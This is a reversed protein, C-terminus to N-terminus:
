IGSVWTQRTALPARPARLGIPFESFNPAILGIALIGQRFRIPNPTQILSRAPQLIRTRIGWAQGATAPNTVPGQGRVQSRSELAEVEVNLTPHFVDLAEAAQKIPHCARESPQAFPRLGDALGRQVAVGTGAPEIGPGTSRSGGRGAAGQPCAGGQCLRTLRRDGTPLTIVLLQWPSPLPGGM